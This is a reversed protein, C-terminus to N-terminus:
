EAIMCLTRDSFKFPRRLEDLFHMSRLSAAEDDTRESGHIGIQDGRENRLEFLPEGANMKLDM